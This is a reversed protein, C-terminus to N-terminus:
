EFVAVEHAFHQNAFTYCLQLFVKLEDYEGEDDDDSPLDPLGVGAHLRISVVSQDAEGIAGVSQDFWANVVFFVFFKPNKNLVVNWDHRSKLLLQGVDVGECLQSDRARLIYKIHYILSYIM